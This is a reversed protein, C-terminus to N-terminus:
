CTVQRPTETNQLFSPQLSKKELKSECGPVVKERTIANEFDVRKNNLWLGSMCGVFSTVNRLHWKKQVKDAMSSPLGGVYLSSTLRLKNKLGENFISRALGGDVRLTFNKNM